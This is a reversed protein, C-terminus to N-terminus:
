DSTKVCGWDMQSPLAPASLLAQSWVHRGQYVARRVHQKLAASTPPILQVNNKRAFLKCRTKDVDTSTSTRDYLLIVSMEITHTVVEDVQYPATTLDILVQTFEPVSTWVEWATRTGRDAFSSVTDCGTLAHFMPLAQAKEPGLARMMEHTALFRFAKGTGFSVWVEDEKDLTCALAVALVVVDTDVTRTTIKSRGAHAAHAAHLMMRSDAEEHTCPALSTTDLLPPKSLIDGRDTIVLQKDALQFSDLLAGSLFSFLETKNDDVRLVSAWNGPISAGGVVRRRVGKGRKAKEHGQPFRAPLPGV